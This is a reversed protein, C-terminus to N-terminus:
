AGINRKYYQYLQEPGAGLWNKMHIMGFHYQLAVAGRDKYRRASTIVNEPLIKFPAKKYIRRIFEADEYVMYSEDFGGLEYFFQKTIFLSQDGGRCIQHNIRTFWSFFQLFRSESDFRMRFCGAQNGTQVAKRITKDFDRPPLTDVHLFYLIDAQAVAAGRNMQVARGKSSSVVTLGENLAVARSEDTSGGDVILIELEDKNHANAQIHENLAKIHTEEDYVPVIITIHPKNEPMM